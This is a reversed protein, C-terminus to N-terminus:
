SAKAQTLFQTVDAPDIACNVADLDIGRGLVIGTFVTNLGQQAQNVAQVHQAVIAAQQPTFKHTTTNPIVPAPLAKIQDRM